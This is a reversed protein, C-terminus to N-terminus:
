AIREWSQFTAVGRFDDCADGPSPDSFVLRECFATVGGLPPIGDEYTRRLVMRQEKGWLLESRIRYSQDGTLSQDAARQRLEDDFSEVFETGDLVITWIGVWRDDAGGQNTPGAQDETIISRYTGSLLEAPGDKERFNRNPGPGASTRWWEYFSLDPVNVEHDTVVETSAHGLISMTEDTWIITPVFELPTPHDVYCAVAGREAGDVSYFDSASVDDRCSAGTLGLGATSRAFADNLDDVSAFSSYTATLEDRTCTVGGLAGVPLPDAAVCSDGFSEPVVEIVQEDAETMGRVGTAETASRADTGDYGGLLLAVSVGAAVLVAAGAPILWWPRRRSAEAPPLERRQIAEDPELPLERRIGDITAVDYVHFAGDLGKLEHVGHDVFVIGKDAVSDRVTASVLVEGEKGLAM